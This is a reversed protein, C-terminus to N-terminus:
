YGTPPMFLPSKSRKPRYSPRANPWGRTRRQLERNWVKGSKMSGEVMGLMETTDSRTDHCHSRYAHVSHNRNQHAPIQTPRSPTSPSQFPNVVRLLNSPRLPPGKRLFLESRAPHDPVMRKEEAKRSVQFQEAHRASNSDLGKHVGERGTDDNVASHTKLRKLTTGAGM